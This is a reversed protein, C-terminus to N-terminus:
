FYAVALRETWRGFNRGNILIEESGTTDAAGVVDSGAPNGAPLSFSALVPPGYTLGDAPRLYPVESQQGAVEVALAHGRGTGPATECVINTQLLAAGATGAAVMRCDVAEYVTADAGGYYVRM